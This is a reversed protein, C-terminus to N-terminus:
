ESGVMQQLAKREIAVAIGQVAFGMPGLWFYGPLGWSLYFRDRDM